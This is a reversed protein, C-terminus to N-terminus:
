SNVVNEENSIVNFLGDDEKIFTPGLGATKPACHGRFTASNLIRDGESWGDRGEFPAAM